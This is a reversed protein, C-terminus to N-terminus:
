MYTVVVGIKRETTVVHVTSIKVIMIAPVYVM